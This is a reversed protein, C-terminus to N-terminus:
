EAVGGHRSPAALRGSPRRSRRGKPQHRWVAVASTGPPVESAAVDFVEGGRVFTEAAAVDLLDVDGREPSARQVVGQTEESFEGWRFAGSVLYLRHVRGGLAGWLIEPLQTSATGAQVLRVLESTAAQRAAARGPALVAMAQDHIRAHSWDEVNGAIAEDQLHPYQNAQRFLPFLYGVGAFVLPAQKGRLFAALGRDIIRFYEILEEKSDDPAGGQGHFVLGQKGHVAPSASHSQILGEPQDYHLARKMDAPLSDLAVEEVGTPTGQYLRVQNRSVSLLYFANNGAVLPLLPRVYHRRGVYLFPEFAAPLRWARFTSPSVMLALGDAPSEWFLRDSLLAQAPALLERAAAPRQGRDELQSQADVLLNKLRIPDQEQVKGARHTPLYVSVCPNTAAEILERVDSPHIADM